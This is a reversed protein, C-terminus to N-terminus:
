VKEYTKILNGATGPSMAQARRVGRRGVVEVVVPVTDAQVWEVRRNCVGACWPSPKYLVLLSLHELQLTGVISDEGM